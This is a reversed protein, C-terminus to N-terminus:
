YIKQIELCKKSDERRSQQIQNKVQQMSGDIYGKEFDQFEEADPMQVDNDIMKNFIYKRDKRSFMYMFREILTLLDSDKAKEVKYNNLKINSSSSIFRKGKLQNHIVYMDKDTINKLDSSKTIYKAVEDVASKIRDKYLRKGDKRYQKARIPMISCILGTESEKLNSWNFQFKYKQTEDDFYKECSMYYKHWMKSLERYPAKNNIYLHNSKKSYNKDCVLICHFHPHAKGDSRKFTLETTRVYAYFQKFQKTKRLGSNFSYSMKDLTIGLDQFECNPVTLTLFLFDYGEADFEKMVCEISYSYRLSRYYNCLPCFKTQCMGSQEVVNKEQMSDNNLYRSIIAIKGCNSIRTQLVDDFSYLYELETSNNKLQSPKFLLHKKNNNSM